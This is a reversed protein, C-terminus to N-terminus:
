VLGGMKLLDGRVTRLEEEYQRNTHQPQLNDM